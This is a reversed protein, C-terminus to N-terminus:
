YTNARLRSLTELSINLYSAIYKLPVANFLEKNQTYFEDYRQRATKNLMANNRDILAVLYYQNILRGMREWTKSKEYLTNLDVNSIFLTKVPTLAQIVFPQPQGMTFGQYDTALSGATNFWTTIEDNNEDVIYHRAIGDIIFYLQSFNQKADILVDGKAFEQYHLMGWFEVWENATPTVFQNIYQKFAIEIEM